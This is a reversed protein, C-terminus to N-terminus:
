RARSGNLRVTAPPSERFQRKYDASFASMHWFGWRAAIDHISASSGGLLKLDRRAGCLRVARFYRHPTVGLVDRFSLELARRSAGVENWVELMTMPRDPSSLVLDCARDVLRKRSALRQVTTDRVVAPVGGRWKMLVSDRLHVASSPTSLVTPDAVTADLASLLIQRMSAAFAPDAEVVVKREFWDAWASHNLQQWARSLLDERIVIALFQSNERLTLDLEDGCGVMISNGGVPQGHFHAFGHASLCMPIGIHERGIQGAAANARNTSESFLRLDELQVLKISGEFDGESLQEYRLTWDGQVGALDDVDWIETAQVRAKRASVIARSRVLQGPESDRCGPLRFANSRFNLCITATLEAPTGFLRVQGEAPPAGAPHGHRWKRWRREGPDREPQRAARVRHRVRPQTILDAARPM